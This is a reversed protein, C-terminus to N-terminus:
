IRRHTGDKIGWEKGEQSLLPFSRKPHSTLPFATSAEMQAQSPSPCAPPWFSPHPSAATLMEKAGSHSRTNNNSGTRVSHNLATSNQEEWLSSCLPWSLGRAASTWLESGM